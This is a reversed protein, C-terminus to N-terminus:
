LEFIRLTKAAVLATFVANKKRTACKASPNQTSNKQRQFPIGASVCRAQQSPAMLHWSVFKLQGLVTRHRTSHHINLLANAYFLNKTTAKHKNVKPNQRFCHLRYQIYHLQTNIQPEYTLSWNLYKRRTKWLRLKHITRNGTIENNTLWGQSHCSCTSWIM